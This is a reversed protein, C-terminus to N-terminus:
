LIKNIIIMLLHYTAFTNIDIKLMIKDFDDRFSFFGNKFYKFFTMFAFMFSKAHTYNQMMSSSMDNNYIIILIIEHM